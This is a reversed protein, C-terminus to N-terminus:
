IEEKNDMAAKWTKEANECIEEFSEPKSIGKHEISSKLILYMHNAALRLIDIERALDENSANNPTMPVSLSQRIKENPIPQLNKHKDGYRNELEIKVTNCIDKSIKNSLDDSASGDHISQIANCFDTSVVFAMNITRKEGSAWVSCFFPHGVAEGMKTKETLLTWFIITDASGSEMDGIVTSGTCMGFKKVEEPDEHDIVRKMELKALGLNVTGGIHTQIKKVMKNNRRAVQNPINRDINFDPPQRLRPGRM